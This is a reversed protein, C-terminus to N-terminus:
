TVRRILQTKSKRFLIAYFGIEKSPFHIEGFKLSIQAWPGQERYTEEMPHTFSLIGM